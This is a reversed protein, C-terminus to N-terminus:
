WTYGVGVLAKNYDFKAGTDPTMTTFTYSITVLYDNEFRYETGIGYGFGSASNFDGDNYLLYAVDMIGYVGIGRATEGFSYGLKFKGDLEVMTKKDTFDSPNHVYGLGFNAGWMLGNDYYYNGGLDVTVYPTVDEVIKIHGISISASGVKKDPTLAGMWNANLISVSTLMGLGLVLVKNM